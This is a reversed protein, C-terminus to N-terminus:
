EFLGNLLALHVGIFVFINVSFVAFKTRHVAKPQNM